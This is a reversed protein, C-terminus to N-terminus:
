SLRAGRLSRFWRLRRLAGLLGFGGRGRLAPTDIHCQAPGAGHLGAVFVDADRRLRYREGTALLVDPSARDRADFTLWLCGGLCVLEAGARLRLHRCQSDLSLTCSM